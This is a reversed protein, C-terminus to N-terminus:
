RLQVGTIKKLERRLQPHEELREQLAVFERYRRKVLRNQIQWTNSSTKYWALYQLLWHCHNLVVGPM